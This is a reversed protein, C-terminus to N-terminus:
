PSLYVYYATRPFRHGLQDNGRNQNQSSEPSTTIATMVQLSLRAWM